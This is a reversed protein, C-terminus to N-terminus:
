ESHKYAVFLATSKTIHFSGEESIKQDLYRKLAEIQSKNLAIQPGANMSLIYKIVPEAETVELSDYFPIINITEFWPSLQSTGNEVTFENVGFAHYSQEYLSPDIHSLMQRFEVMHNKGNTAAALKGGPKLVRYIESFAQMRQPVHYLMHNAIILHFFASPFPIAQADIQTLTLPLASAHTNLRAEQLMGQSFDSLILHQEPSLRDLNHKWLLGPGCGLELANVNGSIDLRDFVWRFWDEPNTSFRRHLDIRANLNGANVYQNNRLYEQDTRRSMM